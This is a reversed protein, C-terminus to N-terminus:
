VLYDIHNSAFSNLGLPSVRIGHDNISAVLAGNHCIQLLDVVGQGICSNPASPELNLFGTEIGRSSNPSYIFQNGRVTILADPNWRTNRISLIKETSFKNSEM